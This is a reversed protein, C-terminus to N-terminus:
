KGTALAPKRSYAHAVATTRLHKCYALLGLYLSNSPKLRYAPLLRGQVGEQYLSVYAAHELIYARFMPTADYEYAAVSVHNRTAIVELFKHVAQAEAQYKEREVDLHGVRLRGHSSTPNLLYAELAGTWRDEALLEGIVSREGILDLGRAGIVKLTRSRHLDAVLEVSFQGQGKPYFRDIPSLFALRLRGLTSAILWVVVAVTICLAILQPLGLSTNSLATYV